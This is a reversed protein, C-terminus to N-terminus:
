SRYRHQQIPNQFLGLRWSRRRSEIVEDDDHDDDLNDDHYTYSASCCGSGETLSGLRCEATPVRRRALGKNDHLCPFQANLLQCTPLTNPKVKPRRVRHRLAISCRKLLLDSVLRFIASCQMVRLVSSCSTCHMLLTLYGTCITLGPTCAM